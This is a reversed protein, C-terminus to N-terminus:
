GQISNQKGPLEFSKGEPNYTLNFVLDSLWKKFSMNDNFASCNWTTRWSTLLSLSCRQERKGHPM